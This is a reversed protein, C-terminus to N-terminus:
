SSGAAFSGGPASGTSWGSATRSLRERERTDDLVHSLTAAADPDLGATASGLGVAARRGLLREYSHQQNDSVCVLAAPVGLCCLEWISTGSASVVLDQGLMLETLDPRPPILEVSLSLRAVTRELEERSAPQTIATVALDRGTAALVDLVRGTM